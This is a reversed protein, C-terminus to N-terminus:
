PIQIVTYKDTLTGNNDIVLRDETRYWISGAGANGCGYETEVDAVGGYASVQESSISFNGDM